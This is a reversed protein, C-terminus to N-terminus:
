PQLAFCYIGGYGGGAGVTNDGPQPGGTQEINIGAGCGGADHESVWNRGGGGERPWSHGLRPADLNEDTSTWDNCTADPSFFEGNEDSGTLTDHNDVPDMTPDPQHNPVGDENPLDDVITPDCNLPRESRLDDPSMAVTRGLRDYWPGTGIRDIANVPQGTGDDSVSLFARWQKAASGPMSQEAITECIKDAGRLGAGPGDEGFRLDGGFGNDSGSLEQMATMSTVFFSFPDLEVPEGSSGDAPTTDAGGDSSDGPSATTGDDAGTMSGPSTTSMTTTPATTTPTGDDAGSTGDTGADGDSAACALLVSSLCLSVLSRSM